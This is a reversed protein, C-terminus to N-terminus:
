EEAGAENPAPRKPVYYLIRRCNPCQEFEELRLMKQFMMPPVAIHCGNCTGDSTQAIAKPRRARISEYRRYVAPPLAKVAIERDRALRVRDEEGVVLHATAGEKTGALEADLATRKADGEQISERAKESIKTLREVEDERDRVLRRLDEFERQAALSERENRSRSMKERAKEIQSNMQRIESQLDNRTKDMSGLAEKDAAIRQETNALDTKLTELGGRHTSLSEEVKRIREDIRALTELQEIQQQITM